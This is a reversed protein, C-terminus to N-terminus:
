LDPRQVVRVANVVSPRYSRRDHFSVQLTGGEPLDVVYSRRDAAQGGVQQAIDYGVLVNEGNIDVDFKRWNVKPSPGLEAFDLTVEYKGAPLEDFKYADMGERQSRYLPDDDTNRIDVSDKATLVSSTGVWGFSGSKYAQDAM